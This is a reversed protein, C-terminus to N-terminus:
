KITHFFPPHFAVIGKKYMFIGGANEDKISTARLPIMTNRKLVVSLLRIGSDHDPL